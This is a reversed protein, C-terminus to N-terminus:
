LCDRIRGEAERLIMEVDAGDLDLGEAAILVCEEIGFFSQALAKVYGYGFADSYIKGGATTIYFLKKAKCLGEPGHDTYFFTIGQVCIQELYQKLAAPFSFDWFPAAIVITDAESFDRALDFLPDSYEGREILDTRHVIFEEDAAPFDIKSLNVEKWEGDLLSLLCDALIKTRSEERVCANILLIM